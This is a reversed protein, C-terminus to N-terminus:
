LWRRGGLAGRCVLHQVLQRLRLHPQLVATACLFGRWLAGICRAERIDHRPCLLHLHLHLVLSAVRRRRGLLSRRVRPTFWDLLAATM